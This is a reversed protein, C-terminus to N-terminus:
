VHARGIKKRTVQSASRIGLFHVGELKEILAQDTLATSIAEINSYGADRFVREASSHIGELLLIKLRSKDFSTRM